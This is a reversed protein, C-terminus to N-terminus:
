RGRIVCAKHEVFIILAKLKPLTWLTRFSLFPRNEAQL